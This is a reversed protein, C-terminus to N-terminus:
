LLRYLRFEDQKQTNCERRHVREWHAAQCAEGCYAVKNCRGCQYVTAESVSCQMCVIPPLWTHAVRQECLSKFKPIQHLMWIFVTDLVFPELKALENFYAVQDGIFAVKAWHSQTEWLRRPNATCANCMDRKVNKELCNWCYPLGDEFKVHPYKARFEVFAKMLRPEARLFQELWEGRKVIVQQFVGYDSGQLFNQRLDSIGFDTMTIELIAQPDAEYKGSQLRIYNNVYRILINTGYLDAHVIGRSHLVQLEQDIKEIQAQTMHVQSAFLNDDWMETVSYGFDGAMWSDVFAPGIKHEVYLARTLEMESTWRTRESAIDEQYSEDSEDNNQKRKIQQVKLAFLKNPLSDHRVIRVSGYSGIGLLNEASDDLYTWGRLSSTDGGGKRTKKGPTLRRPTTQRLRKLAEVEEPSPPTLPPEEAYLTSKQKRSSRM